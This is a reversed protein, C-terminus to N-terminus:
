STAEVMPPFMAESQPRCLGLRIQIVARNDTLTQMAKIPFSILYKAMASM